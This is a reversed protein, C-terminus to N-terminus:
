PVRDEAEMALGIITVARAAVVGVAAELEGAANALLRDADARAERVKRADGSAQLCVREAAQLRM